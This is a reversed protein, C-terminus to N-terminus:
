RDPEKIVVLGKKRFCAKGQTTGCQSGNGELYRLAEEPAQQWVSSERTETHTTSRTSWEV